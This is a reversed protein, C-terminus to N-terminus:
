KSTEASDFSQLTSANQKQSKPKPKKVRLDKIPQSKISSKAASPQNDWFFHQDTDYAYSCPRLITNVEADVAKEVIEEFGNLNQNCQKIKVKM